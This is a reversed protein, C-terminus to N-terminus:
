KPNESTLDVAFGGGVSTEDEEEMASRQEVMCRGEGEVKCAGM